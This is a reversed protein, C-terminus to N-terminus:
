DCIYSANQNIKWFSYRDGKLDPIGLKSEILDSRYELVLLGGIQKPICFEDPIKPNQFALREMWITKPSRKALHIISPRNPSMGIDEKHFHQEWLAEQFSINPGLMPLRLLKGSELDVQDLITNSYSMTTPLTFGIPSFIILDLLVFLFLLRGGRIHESRIRKAGKSALVSWGVLALLMFRGHHNILSYGPIVQLFLPLPNLIKTDAGLFHLSNGFSSLTFFLFVGWWFKSRAFFCIGVLILGLYSPHFRIIEDSFDIYWAHFLSAIDAQKWPNLGWFPQYELFHSGFRHGKSLLREWHLWLLPSLLLWAGFGFRLWRKWEREKVIAVVAVMVALIGTMWGLVLGSYGVGALGLVGWWSKRRLFAISIAVLGLGMDETLGSFITGLFIPSFALVVAGIWPDGDETEALFYGGFAALLVSLFVWANYGFITGGIVAFCNSIIMPIIDIPPFLEVGIAKKMGILQDPFDQFRWWHSWAHGYVESGHFGFLQETSVDRFLFVFCFFVLIIKGILERKEENLNIM